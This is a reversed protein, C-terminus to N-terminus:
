GKKHRRNAWLEALMRKREEAERKIKMDEEDVETPLEEFSIGRMRTLAMLIEFKRPRYIHGVHQELLSFLIPSSTSKSSVFSDIISKMGGGGDLIIDLESVLDHMDLEPKQRARKLIWLACIGCGFLHCNGGILQECKTMDVIGTDDDSDYGDDHNYENSSEQWLSFRGGGDLLSLKCSDVDVSKDFLTIVPRRRRPTGDGDWPLRHVVGRGGYQVHNHSFQYSISRAKQLADSAVYRDLKIVANPVDLWDGVGGVVVVSSIGHKAYLGNVRYLLPTISEDMVLARMRGDRSMFNAASVDEDVLLASARMEIAEAVNAAQSTSGSAERTSFKRTDSGIIPLNSIFASVNTNNVYRGDEARVTVASSDTVCLERGDGLVKNYVSVMITRLMTSKGHYGGGVVLTIGKPIIMGSITVTTENISHINKNRVYKCLKGIDVTIDLSMSSGEPAVFPIAPPSTMPSLSVGSKRPMISGNAIFGVADISPLMQRIKTQLVSNAVHALLDSLSLNSCMNTLYNTLIEELEVVQPTTQCNNERDVHDHELVVAFTIHFSDQDCWIDSREFLYPLLKNSRSSLQRKLNIGNKIPNHNYLRQRKRCLPEIIIKSSCSSHNWDLTAPTSELFTQSVLYALTIGGDKGREKRFAEIADECTADADVKVIRSIFDILQINATVLISDLAILNCFLCDKSLGDDKEGGEVATHSLPDHSFTYRWM